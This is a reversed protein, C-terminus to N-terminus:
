VRERCSARGIKGKAIDAIARYARVTVGPILEGEWAVRGKVGSAALAPLSTFLLGLLCAIQM